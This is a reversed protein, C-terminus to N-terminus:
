EDNNTADANAAQHTTADTGNKGFGLKNNGGKRDMVSANDIHGAKKHKCTASTHNPNITAGHSWCYYGVFAGPSNITADNLKTTLQKSPTAPTAANAGHFGASKVTLRRLRETNASTFHTMFLPMTWTAEDLKRWDDYASSFVGTREFVSLTLEIADAATIAQGADAAFTRIDAIRTWLHEIPEDPSWEDRLRDRNQERAFQTNEGYTDKLHQLMTAPSIDAFGWNRDKLVSLYLPEVAAIIQRKLQNVVNNYTQFEVEAKDFARNAEVIQPGTAANAHVVPPPAVPNVFAVNTRELYAAAPMLLALYGNAGGGRNSHIARANEYLEQQLLALSANNPKGIVPTLVPKPFSLSSTSLSM